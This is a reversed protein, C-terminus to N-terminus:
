RPDEEPNLRGSSHNSSHATAHRRPAVAHGARQVQVPVVTSQWPVPNCAMGLFMGRFVSRKHTRIWGDVPVGGRGLNSKWGSADSPRPHPPPALSNPETALLPTLAKTLDKPLWCGLVGSDGPAQNLPGQVHQWGMKVGAGQARCPPLGKGCCLMKNRWSVQSDTGSLRGSVWSFVKGCVGLVTDGNPCKPSPQTRLSCTSKSESPQSSPAVSCFNRPERIRGM